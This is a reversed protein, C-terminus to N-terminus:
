YSDRFHQIIGCLPAMVMKLQLFHKQKFRLTLNQNLWLEEDPANLMFLIILRRWMINQINEKIIIIFIEKIINM